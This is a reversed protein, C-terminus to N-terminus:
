DQLVWVCVTVDAATAFTPTGRSVLAGYVTGSLASSTRARIPMSISGIAHVSNDNFAFRSSSGLSIPTKAYALDGDAIDFAAQDTFTTNSPNTEFLIVDLDSAQAALDKITVGMVYGSGVSPRLLNTFTLKGGILDGSSYAATDVTPTACVVNTAGVSQGQAVSVFLLLTCIIGVIRKM